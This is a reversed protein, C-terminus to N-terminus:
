KNIGIAVGRSESSPSGIISGTEISHIFCAKKSGQEQIKEIVQNFSFGPGQCFVIGKESGEGGPIINQVEKMSEVDGVLIAKIGNESNKSIGEKQLIVAFFARIWVAAELFIASFRQIGSKAHKRIFQGMAGYFRKIYTANKRTSEGKFHIITITPLYYNEFGEEKIRFSLDIDEAYMFFREDFGGTKDLIEKRVVMFAGALAEVRNIGNEPLNGMYYRSFLGSNPFIASFGAMKCFAVWPTPFGRKSEKLYKGSGDVMRVGIGGAEPHSNFFYVCDRFSNEGVITDPNLFLVAKGRLHPLVQNNAAGFGRNEKNAVWNVTPFRPKLYELSGDTSSNDVVFVEVEPQNKCAAKVSALCQELFYKVNYNVIVVSLEM